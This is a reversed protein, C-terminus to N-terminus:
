EEAAAAGKKGMYADLDDDLGGKDAPGKDGKKGRGKGKGGGGGGEEGGGGGMYSDMQPLRSAPHLLADTMM